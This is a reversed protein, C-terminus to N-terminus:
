ELSKFADIPNAKGVHKVIPSNHTYGRLRMEEVLQDHRNTLSAPNFLNKKLYGKLSKGKSFCGAFM